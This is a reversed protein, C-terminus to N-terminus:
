VASATHTLGTLSNYLQLCATVPTAPLVPNSKQSKLIALTLNQTPLLYKLHILYKLFLKNERKGETDQTEERAAIKM